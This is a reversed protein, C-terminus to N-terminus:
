AAEDTDINHANEVREMFTAPSIGLATSMAAFDDLTIPRQGKTKRYVNTRDMSAAEAVSAASAEQRAMEARLEAAATENWTTAMHWCYSTDWNNDVLLM